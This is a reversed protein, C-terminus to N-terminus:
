TLNPPLMKPNPCFPLSRCNPKAKPYDSIKWFVSISIPWMFTDTLHPEGPNINASSFTAFAGISVLATLSPSFKSLWVFPIQFLWQLPYKETNFSLTTFPL